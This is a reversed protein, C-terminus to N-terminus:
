ACAKTLATVTNVKGSAWDTVRGPTLTGTTLEGVKHSMDGLAKKLTADPSQSALQALDDSTKKADRAAQAPDSLNPTFGALKLAQVCISAKDTATGVTDSAQKVQECATLGTVLVAALLLRRIL